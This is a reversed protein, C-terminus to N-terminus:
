KAFLPQCSPAAETHGSIAWNAQRAHSGQRPMDDTPEQALVRAATPPRTQITAPPPIPPANSIPATLRQVPAGLPVIASEDYDPPRQRRPRTSGIGTTIGPTIRLVARLHAEGYVLM